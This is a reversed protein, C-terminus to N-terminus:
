MTVPVTQLGDERLETICRCQQRFGGASIPKITKVLGGEIEETGSCSVKRALLLGRLAPLFGCCWQAAGLM